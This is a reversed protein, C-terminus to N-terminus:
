PKQDDAPNCINGTKPLVDPTTWPNSGDFAPPGGGGPCPALLHTRGGTLPPLAGTIGGLLSLVGTLASPEGQVTLLSKLYHGNADYYGASAGGVGNFFGAVVDSTYPRLGALIPTVETAATTLSRVAPTAHREVPPFAVLAATAKPILQQVGKVTPIANQATPLLNRLLTALKPAVPQLDRLTPDLVHLTFDVDRLVATSQQLVAPARSISDELAARQSAVERLAAATNTVAGGLDANRSALASAVDATSSVLRELEFKDAAVDAGLAASQSLAPNLYRFAANLQVATPNHVFFAGTRLIQQISARVRPTLSDLVADFDVIGRSQTLPLTGGSTIAPGSGSLTLGVFRNAIGTLSLQGITALSDAHIPTISSESINLEVDALGNDSLTISGVSGVQHGAVTVLDGRVLQGADTFPVHLVYTSSGSFLVITVAVVALVLAGLAAIRAYSRQVRIV